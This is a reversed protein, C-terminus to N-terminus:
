RSLLTTYTGVGKYKVSPNKSNQLPPPDFFSTMSGIVPNFSNSTANTKSVIGAHSLRVSPCIQWLLIASQMRLRKYKVIKRLHTGPAKWGPSFSCVALDQVLHAPTRSGPSVQDQEAPRPAFSGSLRSAASGPLADYCQRNLAGGVGTYILM